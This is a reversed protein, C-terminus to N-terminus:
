APPASPSGRRAPPWRPRSRRPPPTPTRSGPRGPAPTPAAPTSCSRRSGAAPSCRSRGCCRARGQGPQRHLRRRGRRAPRRQRGARPRPQREGQARRHGRAGPLGEPRHRTVAGGRAPCAPRDRRPRPRPQRVAPGPRRRGQRPQRDGRRGRGPRSDADVAVQLHCANSGGTAATHPWPGDPLVHVFPEDDYAARLAARLEAEGVRPARRHLHGPHRAADPRAAPHVLARGPRRRAGWRSASRRPTGTPVSRTPTVPRGDGRQWCGRTPARGAGATGRRRHHGPRGPRRARGGAAPRARAGDRHPLLGPGRGPDRRRARAASCSPCGTPGAAPTRSGYFRAWAAAAGLRHDAGLDVVPAGQRCPRRSPPRSGTRCPSSSSTPGPWRRRTPPSSRATPSSRCTAPAPRHAARGRQQGGRAPRDRPRPPALLLRLLEGGAYGSAGAVAATLGMGGLMCLRAHSHSATADPARIEHSRPDCIVGRPSAVPGLLAARGPRRAPARLGEGTLRRAAGGGGPPAGRRGRRRPRPPRRRDLTRDAARLRLAYALSRHGDGVQPGTYVDFLRLSELLPGAGTGCRRRSRRGGADARPRGARRRRRRGPLPSCPRHRPPRCPRRPPWCCSSTRRPPSRGPRCGPRPSWGRTCSGRWGSGAATWSSSPAAAPTGPPRPPASRGCSSGCPRPRAAVLAEVADAWDVPRRQGARVPRATGTILVGSTGRGPAAARRGAPAREEDTPGGTWAAAGRRLSGPATSSWGPRSCGVDAQGRAVNRLAATVLGPLLLPRLLADTESLPNLLRPSTRRAAAGPRAAGRVRVAPDGGRGARRRGAGAVRQAAPAAGRDARARGARDAAARSRTTARSGCSRRSWTSRARAPGPALDAPRGAGPRRRHVACGVDALRQRVVAPEVAPGAVRGPRDLASRSRRSAAGAPRRRHQRGATAGGLEVLLRVAAEAAAPALATDVGREFRRSAESPLRHRRASRAISVPAFHAAEIVLDTTSGSVETSAGGM